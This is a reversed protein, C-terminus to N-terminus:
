FHLKLGVSAGAGAAEGGYNQARTQTATDNNGNWKLGLSLPNDPATARSAARAPTPSGSLDIPSTADPGALDGKPRSAARPAPVKHGARAKAPSSRRGISPEAGPAPGAHDAGAPGGTPQQAATPGVALVLCIALLGTVAVRM